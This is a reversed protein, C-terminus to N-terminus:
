LLAPRDRRPRRQRHTLHHLLLHSYEGAKGKETSVRARHKGPPTRHRRQSLELTNRSVKDLLRFPLLEGPVSVKIQYTAERQRTTNLASPFTM